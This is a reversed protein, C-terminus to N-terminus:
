HKEDVEQYLIEKQVHHLLFVLMLRIKLKQAKSASVLRVFISLFKNKDRTSQKFTILCSM